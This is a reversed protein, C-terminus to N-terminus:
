MHSTCVCLYELGRLKLPWRVGLLSTSLDCLTYEPPTRLGGGPPPKPAVFIMLFTVLPRPTCTMIAKARKIPEEKIIMANDCRKVVM